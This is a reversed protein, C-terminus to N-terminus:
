ANEEMFLAFDERYSELSEASWHSLAYIMGIMGYLLEEGDGHAELDLGNSDENLGYASISKILRLRYEMTWIETTDNM